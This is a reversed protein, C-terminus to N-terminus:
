IFNINKYKIRAKVYRVKKNRHFIKNIRLKIEEIKSECTRESAKVFDRQM